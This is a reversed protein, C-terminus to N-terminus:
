ILFKILDDKKLAGSIEKKKEGNEYIILTPITMVSHKLALEQEEDVNIKCFKYDEREKSAAEFVPGLMQCPGCWAAWFDIIVKKDSKLVESEFNNKNVTVLSM